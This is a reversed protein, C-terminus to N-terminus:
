HGMQEKLEQDIWARAWITAQNEGLFGKLWPQYFIFGTPRPRIVLIHQSLQYMDADITWQQFDEMNTASIAKDLLADFEPDNFGPINWLAGGRLGWDWTATPYDSDSTSTMGYGLGEYDHSAAREGMLGSELVNLEVDVGIAAWYMKMLQAVDVDDGWDPSVDWKTKFGDPYGAEDLLRMAEEPDYRFGYQMEEPWEDFPIFFGELAPGATGYPTPDAYGKYYTESIAELDIAKQMAIRVNIDDYPPADVDIAVATASAPAGTLMILEPSNKQLSQALAIEQIELATVKGTRLAAMQASFDPIILLRIEDFYPLRNEPYNEDNGWYDPYRTLTGSSGEIADTLQYPGTGVVSQWELLDGYEEVVERPQVWSLSQGFLLSRLISFSFQEVKVVVTWKDVAWVSEEYVPFATYLEMKDTFGYKDPIGLLRHWTYELDYADLERGNMPPKDHWHVGKRIHFIYTLQDPQEWSEALHGKVMSLPLWGSQFSFEERPVGFDPIALQEYVLDTYSLGTDFFPDPYPSTAWAPLVRTLTGGYEPTGAEEQVAEEQETEEAPASSCSALVLTLVMLCGVLGWVIRKM